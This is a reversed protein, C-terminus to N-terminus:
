VNFQPGTVCYATSSTLMPFVAREFKLSEWAPTPLHVTYTYAGYKHMTMSPWLQCANHVAGAHKMQSVNAWDNLPLQCLSQGYDCGVNGHWLRAHLRRVHLFRDRDLTFLHAFPLLVAVSHVPAEGM